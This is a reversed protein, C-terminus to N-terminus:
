AKAWQVMAYAAQWNAEQGIATINYHNDLLWTRLQSDRLDLLDLVQEAQFEPSVDGLIGCMFGHECMASVIQEILTKM